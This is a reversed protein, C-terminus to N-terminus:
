TTEDIAGVADDIIDGNVGVSCEYHVTYVILVAIQVYRCPDSSAGLQVAVPVSGQQSWLAPSFITTIKTLLLSFM